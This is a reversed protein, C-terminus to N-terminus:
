VGQLWWTYIISGSGPYIISGPAPCIISSPAPYIISSGTWEDNLQKDDTTPHADKFAQIAVSNDVTPQARVWVRYSGASTPATITASSGSWPHFSMGPVTSSVVVPEGGVWNGSADRFGIVVKILDSVDAGHVQGATNSLTVPQGSVPTTPSMTCSTITVGYGVVLTNGTWKDNLQKDGTTPHADKFAQIAVSNDVTPQAHIWVHYFGANTPATITGSSGSWARFFMGPITSSVVVPEGGVWNGSADRFGIVIKILDSANAGHVQGATNTLMVPEGSVAVTPSMTCSAITIGYGVVLTDGSWQDDQTQTPVTPVADKFSQIAVSNDVTPQAHVWVRYFGASTPATIVVSNDSWPQFTMGPVTSSVIVPEGGVWHGSTDRFGIVVKILDSVNAGHVQGDMNTLTVPEGSVAVTPSMTCSTITVGYGAGLASCTSILCVGVAVLVNRLM